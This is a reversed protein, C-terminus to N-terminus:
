AHGEEGQGLEPNPNRLRALHTTRPRTNLEGLLSYNRPEKKLQAVRSNADNINGFVIADAPCAQQCATVIEGDRVERDEKQATMRAENIRQVCYTCKEMVGRSRVTVDPNRLLKLSETTMDSYLFWNFRRVKYPCNNSCYKTGVCRNYVMDNLGESSHTTAGVPCVVECPANECQMCPVPQHYTAPNDLDGAYYRDVRIWHMQHGRGVETKGVVAINNEAQCAIECARCGVCSSLDITMGWAYDPYPHEDPYLSLSQPPEEEMERAFEPHARYEELTGVRVLHRGEMGYQSQTTALPYREGVKRVELGTAFWPANSTRLLYANFGTGEGVKGARVRGHGLHVTVAEPAHGPVVWVPARLTRGGYQLEVVDESTVGLRQATAPSMLAANDWTLMTIPKPLEQLWGNNVFRGDHLTPDARFIIELTGAKPKPRQPQAQDWDARLAVTKAPLASDAVVGDNLSKRWFRDPDVGPRQNKWFARVVDHSSQTPMKSFLAIVEYATKGEYLPAILPQMITITGDYARTDGWSELPHAEPVHWHCLESTEDHYQSLHVSLPVKALAERFPIDAPATFVPNGGLIILLAVKGAAMDTVLERLSDTQAIPNAEVSATHIVTQGVNGLSQNMAHALAHVAPPQEDGAIVLSTGRHRVLDRAVAKIWKAHSEVGAPTRVQMGIEAAVARAFDEVESARMPLRHDAIAGTNTPCSEVAYLRNMEAREGAVKRNATFERVYRLHGPLTGIFDADLSLIVAAKDFAYRTEVYEGFALRAGARSNDRNIPEYQDWKALPLDSQLERLQNALTPSTVTETLIRLGAGRQAKLGDLAAEIAARFAAWTRIEGIQTVVQSRDPDYLGLVSAQAFIDTAGLSAPHDPNGEVKTPRGMHSEVLVGCGVGGLPLATAFFLPRGPIVEEPQRVYPMINETPQRTCANLGALALSAGMLKLFQRRDVGEGFVSAQRPFENHLFWRFEETEALEELSRWYQQGKTNALRERIAALDIPPTVASPATSVARGGSGLIPDIDAEHKGM